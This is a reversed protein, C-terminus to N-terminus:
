DMDSTQSSFPPTSEAPAFFRGSWIREIVFLAIIAGGIPIPSYTLGVPISPMQAMVQNWTARVLKTGFGLLFISTGLMCLEIVFGLITRAWGATMSPLAMVAIHLNERYCVAGASFTFVIMLIIAIPEPWQSGYGLVYRTYVGWPIIITIVVLCLGAVLMCFRHLIDMARVYRAYM